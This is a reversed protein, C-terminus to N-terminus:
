CANRQRSRGHNSRDHRSPSPRTGDWDLGLLARVVFRGGLDLCFSLIQCVLIEFEIDILDLVHDAAAGPHRGM